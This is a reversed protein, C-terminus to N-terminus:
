QNEPKIARKKPSVNGRPVSRTLMVPEKTMPKKAIAVLGSPRQSTAGPTRVKKMIPM